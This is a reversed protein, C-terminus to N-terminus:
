RLRLHAAYSGLRQGMLAFAIGIREQDRELDSNMGFRNRITLAPKALGPNRVYRTNVGVKQGGCPTIISGVGNATVGTIIATRTQIRKLVTCSGLQDLRPSPVHSMLYDGLNTFWDAVFSLSVLQYPLAILGQPGLGINDLLGVNWEDYSMARAVVEDTDIVAYQINVGTGFTAVANSISSTGASASGRTTTRRVGTEKRLGQLVKRLDSILPKIGLSKILELESGVRLLKGGRDRVMVVQKRGAKRLSLAHFLLDAHNALSKLIGLTQKYEAVSEWVAAGDVTGRNSLCKATAESIAIQGERAGLLDPLYLYGDPTLSFAANLSELSVAPEVEYETRYRYPSDVGCQWTPGFYKLPGALTAPFLQSKTSNMPNMFVDGNEVKKQFGKVVRDVMVQRDVTVDDVNVSVWDSWTFVQTATCANATASKYRYQYTTPNRASTGRKRTRSIIDSGM